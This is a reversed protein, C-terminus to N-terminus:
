LSPWSWFHKNAKSGTKPAPLKSNSHGLVKPLLYVLLIVWAFLFIMFWPSPNLQPM